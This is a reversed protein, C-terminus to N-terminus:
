GRPILSDEESFPIVEKVETVMTGDHLMVSVIDGPKRAKVSLVPKGEPDSLYGFGGTLKKLPSLGDLKAADVSLRRGAELLRGEMASRLQREISELREKRRLLRVTPKQMSLLREMHNLQERKREIRETMATMLSYHADILRADLDERLGVALEAAASPTPARLDSVYDIITTDTEHGVCSIVPIPCEYVARAVIEENFAWLDEISGGGRGVIMLDVGADTLRRIARVVSEAAGEGQVQAPALIPQVYPDRRHLINLIDQLAAGTRATVIGIRKPYPPLPKKHEADFLGEAALRKKLQEFREYLEGLGASVIRDAYMQYVGDREFVAIRGLVQVQDGERMPFLLGKQRSSAFMVCKLQAGADKLTFYVHGASHYKCNSVEGEVVIRSLFADRTFLNKLYLNVQSVSYVPNM